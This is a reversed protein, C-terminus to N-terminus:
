RLQTGPKVGVVRDLWEGAQAASEFARTLSWKSCILQPRGEDSEILTATIGALAARAQVTAWAKRETDTMTM